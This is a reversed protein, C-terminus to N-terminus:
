DDNIKGEPTAYKPSGFGKTAANKGEVTLSVSGAKNIKVLGKDKLAEFEAASPPVRRYRNFEDKRGRPNYGKLVDIIYQQRPNLSTPAPLWGAVMDPRVTLYAYVPKGGGTSGKIVAFNPPIEYSKTDNDVRNTRNFPNSGGWSGYEGDYEGTSLNVILVFERYGDQGGGFPSVKEGTEVRIDKRGYKVSSLARQIAAPLDSVLTYISM